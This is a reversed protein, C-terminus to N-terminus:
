ELEKKETQKGREGSPFVPPPFTASSAFYFILKPVVTTRIFCGESSLAAWSPFGEHGQHDHTRDRPTGLRRVCKYM